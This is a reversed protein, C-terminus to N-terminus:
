EACVPWLRQEVELACRTAAFICLTAHPPPECGLIESGGGKPQRGQSRGGGKWEWRWGQRGHRRGNCQGHRQRHQQRGSGAAAAAQAPACNFRILILLPWNCVTCICAGYVTAPPQVHSCCLPLRIAMCVKRRNKLTAFAKRLDDLRASAVASKYSPEEHPKRKAQAAQQEAFWKQFEKVQLVTVLVAYGEFGRRVRRPLVTAGVGHGARARGGEAFCILMVTPM